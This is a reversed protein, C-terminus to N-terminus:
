LRNSRFRHLFWAPFAGCGLFIFLQTANALTSWRLGSFIVLLFFLIFEVSFARRIATGRTPVDFFFAAIWDSIALMTDTRSIIPNLHRRANTCSRIHHRCCCFVSEGQGLNHPPIEALRKSWTAIRETSCRSRPGTTPPLHCNDGTDPTKPHAIGSVLGRRRLWGHLLGRM